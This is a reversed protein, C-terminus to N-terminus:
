TRHITSVEGDIEPAPGSGPPSLACVCHLTYVEGEVFRRGAMAMKAGEQLGKLVSSQSRIVNGLRGIDKM